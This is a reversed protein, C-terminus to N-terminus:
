ASFIMPTILRAQSRARAIPGKETPSGTRLAALAWTLAALPLAALFVIGFYVMFETRPPKAPRVAPADSTFDTM